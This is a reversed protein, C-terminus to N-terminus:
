LNGNNKLRGYKWGNNIYSKIQTEDVCKEETGNNMWKRVTQKKLMGLSWGLELYHEIDELKVSRCETGNNMHKRGRNKEAIRESLTPDDEYRKKNAKKVIVRREDPIHKGKMPSPIHKNKITEYWRAYTTENRMNESWTVWRLNDANNNHKDGDIHDVCPKNDPNPVYLIAVARHVCFYPTRYYENEKFNSFDVIVGNRKVRGENSVEYIVKKGCYYTWIENM